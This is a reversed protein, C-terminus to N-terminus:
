KEGEIKVKELPFFYIHIMEEIRTMIDRKVM